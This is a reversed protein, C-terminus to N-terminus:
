YKLHNRKKSNTWSNPITFHSSVNFQSKNNIHKHNHQDTLTVNNMAEISKNMQTRKHGLFVQPRWWASAHVHWDCHGCLQRQNDTVSVTECTRRTDHGVVDCECSKSVAYSNLMFAFADCSHQQLHSVLDTRWLYLAAGNYFYDNQYKYQLVILITLKIITHKSSRWPTFHSRGNPSEIKDQIQEEHEIDFYMRWMVVHRWLNENTNCVMATMTKLKLTMEFFWGMFCDIGPFSDKEILKKKSIMRCFFTCRVHTRPVSQARNKKSYNWLFFENFFLPDWADITKHTPNKWHFKLQFCYFHAITGPYCFITVALFETVHDLTKYGNLVIFWNLVVCCSHFTGHYHLM